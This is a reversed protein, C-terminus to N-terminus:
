SRPPHCQAAGGARDPQCVHLATWLVHCSASWLAADLAHQAVGSQRGCRGCLGAAMTANHSPSTHANLTPMWHMNLLGTGVKIVDLNNLQSSMGILVASWTRTNGASPGGGEGVNGGGCATGVKIVGLNNLQSSM